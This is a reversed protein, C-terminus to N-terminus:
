SDNSKDPEAIGRVRRIEALVEAKHTEGPFMVAPTSVRASLTPFFKYDGTEGWRTGLLDSCPGGELAWRGPAAVGVMVTCKPCKMM